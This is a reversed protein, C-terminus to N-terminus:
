FRDLKVDIVLKRLKNQLLLAHSAPKRYTIVELERLAASGARTETTHCRAYAGDTGPANM